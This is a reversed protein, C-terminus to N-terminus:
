GGHYGPMLFDFQRLGLVVVTMEPLPLLKGPSISRLRDGARSTSPPNGLVLAGPLKAAVRHEQM